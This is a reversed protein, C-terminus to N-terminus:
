DRKKIFFEVLKPEYNLDKVWPSKRAIHILLKNDNIIESTGNVIVRFDKKTVLNYKSIPVKFKLRTREPFIDMSSDIKNEIEIPVYITNGTYQEIPITLKVTNINLSILGSKPKSLRVHLIVTDKLNTLATSDSKWSHIYKLEAAPGKIWVSDPVIEPNNVLGFNENLSMSLPIHIPVKKYYAKVQKVKLIEPRTDIINFGKLPTKNIFQLLRSQSYTHVQSNDLQIFITDKSIGSKNISLLNWGQSNVVYDIFNVPAEAFAMSDSQLYAVPINVEMEYNESMQYLFWFILALVMSIILVSRDSLNYLISRSNM